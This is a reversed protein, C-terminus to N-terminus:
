LMCTPLLQHFLRCLGRSNSITFRRNLCPNQDVHCGGCLFKASRIPRTEGVSFSPFNYHHMFRKVEETGLGDLIQVDGLAGLTCISLVQTQGRTFLGSGHTRPLIGIQSALPRIEGSARGDPRIKDKLILRRVEEKILKQLIEKVEKIREEELNEFHQVVNNTVTDLADKRALKEIVKVAIKLDGDVFDRVAQELEPDFALLKVEMKEKGVKSIIEEQFTILQKIAEHGFMIAELMADESVQEAGAEVM